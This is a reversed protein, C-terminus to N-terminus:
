IDGGDSHASLERDLGTSQSPRVAGCIADRLAATGLKRYSPTIRQHFKSASVPRGVLAVQSIGTHTAPDMTPHAKSRMQLHIKSNM